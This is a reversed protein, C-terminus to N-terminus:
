PRWFLRKGSQCLVLYDTDDNIQERKLTVEDQGTLSDPKGRQAHFEMIRAGIEEDSKVTVIEVFKGGLFKQFNVISEGDHLLQPHPDPHYAARLEITM